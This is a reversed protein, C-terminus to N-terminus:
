PKEPSLDPKNITRDDDRVQKPIELNHSASLLVGENYPENKASLTTASVLEAHHGTKQITQDTVKEVFKTGTCNEITAMPLEVTFVSGGEASEAYIKGGLGEIITKTIYLGLGTGQIERTLPNDIRSFKTFVKDLHSQPIGIGQDIIKIQIFDPHDESLNGNITVKTKTKSYKAANDILNTMVQELKDSDALIKPLNKEILIEFIHDPFKEHIIQVVPEVLSKLDIAKFISKSKKSELRSVTLLNEVLRSLRDIQNKIINLFRHQQEKSLRDQATLLTDAFGKISTLPTRLEHSVTSVFDLHAQNICTLCASESLPLIEVIYLSKSNIELKKYDIKVYLNEGSKTKLEGRYAFIDATEEMLLINDVKKHKLEDFDFGILTKLRTNFYIIELNEDFIIIGGPNNEVILKFFEENLFNM